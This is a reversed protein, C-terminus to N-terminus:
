KFGRLWVWPGITGVSDDTLELNIQAPRMFNIDVLKFLINDENCIRVSQQMDSFSFFSITINEGKRVHEKLIVAGKNALCIEENNLKIGVNGFELNLGGELLKLMGRFNESRLSSLHIF